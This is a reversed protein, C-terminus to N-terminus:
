IDIGLLHAISEVDVNEAVLRHALDIRHQDGARIRGILERVRQVTTYADYSVLIIPTGKEEAKARLRAEPYINDTLILTSTDTELAALAIEPRDGSTIVAKGKARRFHAVAAEAAMAGVMYTEVRRSLAEDSCLIEGGLAAAVEGVTPATLDISEPIVGLVPVGHLSLAEGFVEKVRGTLHEPINNFVVGLLGVQGRSLHICASIAEDVARDECSSSVLLVKSGLKRALRPVSLGLSSGLSLERASESIMLDRGQSIERYAEAVAEDFKHQELLTMAELYRYKLLIPAIRWAPAELGLVERFLIADEDVPRDGLRALPVGVPKFYGVKLGRRTFERALGVCLATKGHSEHTVCAVMLGKLLLREEEMEM